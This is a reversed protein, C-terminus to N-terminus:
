IMFIPTQDGVWANLVNYDLFDMAEDEDMNDDEMLIEKMRQVEYIVRGSKCDVGIIAEEFGDATLLEFELDGYKDLLEEKTM